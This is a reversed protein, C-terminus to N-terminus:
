VSDGSLQCIQPIQDWNFSDVREDKELSNTNVVTMKLNNVNKQWIKISHWLSPTDEQPSITVFIWEEESM